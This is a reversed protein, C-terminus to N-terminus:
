AFPSLLYGALMQEGKAIGYAMLVLAYATHLDVENGALVMTQYKNLYLSAGCRIDVRKLTDVCFLLPSEYSGGIDEHTPDLCIHRELRLKIQNKNYTVGVITVAYLM